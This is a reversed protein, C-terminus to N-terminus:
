MCLHSILCVVLILLLPIKITLFFHHLLESFLLPSFLFVFGSLNVPTDLRSGQPSHAAWSTQPGVCFWLKIYFMISNKAILCWLTNLTHSLVVRRGTHCLSALLKSVGIVFILTNTPTMYGFKYQIVPFIHLFLCCWSSRSRTTFLLSKFINFFFISSHTEIRATYQFWRLFKLFKLYWTSCM